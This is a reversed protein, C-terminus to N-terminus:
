VGLDDRIKDRLQEASLQGNHVSIIEGSADIFATAPM